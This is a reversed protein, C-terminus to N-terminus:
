NSIFLSHLSAFLIHFSLSFSANKEGLVLIYYCVQLYKLLVVSTMLIKEKSYTLENLELFAKQLTSMSIVDHNCQSHVLVNALKTLGM